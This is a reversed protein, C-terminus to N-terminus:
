EVSQPLPSCQLCWQQYNTEHAIMDYCRRPSPSGHLLPYETQLNGVPKLSDVGLQMGTGSISRGGQLSHSPGVHTAIVNCQDHECESGHERYGPPQM